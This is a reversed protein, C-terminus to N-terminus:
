ETKKAKKKTWKRIEQIAFHEDKWGILEMKGLGKYNMFWEQIIHQAANYELLFTQFDTAQMVRYTSDAPVAIIKTDMEGGDKLMLAAIPITPVITGTEFAESIVLIDLPDGDGGRKKDMLTSPIFGYNGPYPLFNIVRGKGDEQDQEFEKSEKNYEIKQNTGAPIEIIANIGKATFEPKSRTSSENQCATLCVSLICIGYLFLRM